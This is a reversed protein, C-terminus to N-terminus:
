AHLSASNPVFAGIHERALVKYEPGPQVLVSYVVLDYNEVDPTRVDWPPLYVVLIYRQNCWSIKQCAYTRWKDAQRNRYSPPSMAFVM